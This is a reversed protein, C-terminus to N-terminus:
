GTLKWFGSLAARTQGTAAAGRSSQVLSSPWPATAGSADSLVDVVAALSEGLAQLDYGGETVAVLRGKCCDDAVACLERTMAAFAPTTLRMGGLPDREHADFGASVLLLDPRFQRLVPVVVEGFLQRYDDDTAGIELPVNITFGAGAGTGIETAAGTGPYYPYQHASIYLVSPDAEFIQQTGNGHHVDYDVIAIRTAGHTKAVAAAVAVNNYLCFGMARDRGAHHGPPRVLAIARAQDTAMVREIASAAAGAALTAISVTEPSTYTDADIASSLGTLREIQRLYGDGHVRALEERTAMRPVVVDHGRARWHSAVASLVAARAPSEPHGPPTQHEDFRDSGIVILSM